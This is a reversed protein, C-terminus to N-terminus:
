TTYMGAPVMSVVLRGLEAELELQHQKQDILEFPMADTPRPRLVHGLAWDAVLGDPLGVLPAMELRAPSPAM